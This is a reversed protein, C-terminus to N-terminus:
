EVVFGDFVEIVFGPFAATVVLLHELPFIRRGPALGGEGEEVEALLCDDGEADGGHHPPRGATDDSTFHGDAVEHQDVGEQDLKVRWEVKEANDIAFDTLRQGVDLAHELQQLLVPFDGICRVRAVHRAPRQINLKLRHIEAVLRIPLNELLDIEGDGGAFRHRDNAM